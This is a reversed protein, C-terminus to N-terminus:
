TIKRKRQYFVSATEYTGSYLNVEDFKCKSIFGTKETQYLLM